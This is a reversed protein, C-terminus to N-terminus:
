CNNHVRAHDKIVIGVIKTHLHTRNNRLKGLPPRTPVCPLSPQVPARPLPSPQLPSVHAPTPQAPQRIISQRSSYIAVLHHLNRPTPKVLHDPTAHTPSPMTQTARFKLDENELGWEIHRVLGARNWHM